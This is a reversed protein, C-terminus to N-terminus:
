HKVMPACQLLLSPINVDITKPFKIECKDENSWQVTMISGPEVGTIYANGNDDVIGTNLGKKNLVQAGFPISNGEATQLTTMVKQGSVVSFKRYGVAGETLTAQVVSQQVDIDDSLTNLDIQVNNRYYSSVDGVVAKGFLNTKVPAGFGRVPVNAVGDTDLLLRTGGPSGMRHMAVGETTLTVGGSAAMSFSSQNNSFSASTSFHATDGQYNLYASGSKYKGSADVSLQYNTREDFIDSYTLRNSTEYRSNSLSYSMNGGNSLAFSTSLYISNDIVNNYINRNISLNVNVNKLKGIDFAKSLTLSYFNTSEQDWYTEYNYNLVMSMGINNFNKSMSVVYQNKSSGYRIGTHNVELFDLLNMFNQESFRYSSFQIQSDISDFYKAYNVRYSSGRLKKNEEALRAFSQTIDFSLTGFALLDRGIGASIAHYNNSVIAGGFLSWGNGGGFSLEGMAFNQRQYDREVNPQGLALKYQIQGPRTLYPLNATDVQYQQVSGDEEEVKVDLKGRVGDYLNQIRFPGAAVKETHIVHGKQSINVTANSKAIGTIEPAYGRLNPPLMNLDSELGAGLFRFSDFLNSNLYDQGLTLRASLNTLARFAYFRNWQIVRENNMQEFVSSNNDLHGYWDARLRWAGLNLGLVGTGNLAYRKEKGFRSINGNINYDLLIAPIGNDWRSPPDWDIASYELYAQPISIHLSSSALDPKAQIGPLSDFNLCQNDHWWTLQKQYKDTLGLKDTLEPSLCAVSDKPDDEPALFVVEEESLNNNNVKIELSYSGPMLYNARSFYGLNINEKDELDLTDTNFEIDQMALANSSTM